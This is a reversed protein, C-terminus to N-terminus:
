FELLDPGIAAAANPKVTEFVYYTVDIDNGKKTYRKAVRGPAENPNALPYIRYDFHYWQGGYTYVATAHAGGVFGSILFYVKEVGPITLLVNAVYWHHCDCDGDPGPNELLWQFHEPEKAYDLWGAPVAVQGEITIDDGPDPGYKFVKALYAELDKPTAFTKLPMKEFDKMFVVAIANWIARLHLAYAFKLWLSIIKKLLSRDKM